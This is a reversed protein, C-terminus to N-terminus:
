NPIFNYVIIGRRKLPKGSIQSPQFKSKLAAKVAAARFFPHGSVVKASEVKGKEDILVEVRVSGRVLFRAAKPYEPKRLYIPRQGCGDCSIFKPKQNNQNVSKEQASANQFACLLFLNALILLFRKM